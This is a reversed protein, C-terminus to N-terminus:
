MTIGFSFWHPTISWKPRHNRNPILNIFKPRYFAWLEPSKTLWFLVLCVTKLNPTYWQRPYNLPQNHPVPLRNPPVSQLNWHEDYPRVCGKRNTSAISKRSIDSHLWAHHQPPYSRGLACLASRLSWPQPPSPIKPIKHIISKYTTYPPESIIFKIHIIPQIYNHFSMPGVVNGFRNIQLDPFPKETFPIM